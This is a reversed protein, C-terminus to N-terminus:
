LGQMLINKKLRNYIVTRVFDRFTQNEISLVCVTSFKPYMGLSLSHYAIYVSVRGDCLISACVNSMTLSVLAALPFVSLPPPIFMGSSISASIATFLDRPSGSM